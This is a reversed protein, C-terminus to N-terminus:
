LSSLNASAKAASHSAAAAAAKLEVQAREKAEKLVENQFQLNTVESAKAAVVASRDDLDAQVQLDLVSTQMMNPMM